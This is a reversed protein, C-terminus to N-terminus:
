LRFKSLFPFAYHIRAIYTVSQKFTSIKVIDAREWKESITYLSYLNTFLHVWMQDDIDLSIFYLFHMPDEVMLLNLNFYLGSFVSSKRRRLIDSGGSYQLCPTIHCHMIGGTFLASQQLPYHCSNFLNQNVFDQYSYLHLFVYNGSDGHYSNMCHFM